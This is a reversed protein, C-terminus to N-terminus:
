LEYVRKADSPDGPGIPGATDILARHRLRAFETSDRFASLNHDSDSSKSRVDEFERPSLWDCDLPHHIDFSVQLEAKTDRRILTTFHINM